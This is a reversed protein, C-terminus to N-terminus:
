QLAHCVHVNSQFLQFRLRYHSQLKRSTATPYTKNVTCWLIDTYHSVTCWLIDTYHFWRSVSKTKTSADGNHAHYYPVHLDTLVIHCILGSSRAGNEFLDVWVVRVFEDVGVVGFFGRSWWRHWGCGSFLAALFVSILDGPTVYRVVSSWRGGGGFLEYWCGGCLITV